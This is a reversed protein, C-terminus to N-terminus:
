AARSTTAIIVKLCSTIKLIGRTKIARVYCDEVCNDKVLGAWDNASPGASHEMALSNSHEQITAITMM